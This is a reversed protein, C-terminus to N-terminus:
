GKKSWFVSLIYGGCTHLHVRKQVDGMIVPRFIFTRCWMAIPSPQRNRMGYRSYVNRAVLTNEWRGAGAQAYFSDIDFHLICRGHDPRVEPPRKSEGEGQHGGAAEAGGNGEHDAIEDMSTEM